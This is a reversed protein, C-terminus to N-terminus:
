FFKSLQKDFEDFFDEPWDNIHGDSDIEPTHININGNTYWFFNIQVDNPSLYNEKVAVRIGNLLHDSHTEVICQLGSAAAKALFQGLIAQGNPHLYAEPNEIIIISNYEANLAAVFIPFAATLGFGAATHHCDNGYADYFSFKM